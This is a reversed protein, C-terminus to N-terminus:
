LPTSVGAVGKGDAVAIGDQVKDDLSVNRVILMVGHRIGLKINHWPMIEPLSIRLIQFEEVLDHLHIDSHSV